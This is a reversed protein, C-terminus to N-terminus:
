WIRKASFAAAHPSGTGFVAAAARNIFSRLFASLVSRPKDALRLRKWLRAAAARQISADSRRLRQPRSPHRARTVEITAGGSEGNALFFRLGPSVSRM